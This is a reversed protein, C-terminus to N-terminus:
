RMKKKKMTTKKQLVSKRCRFCYESPETREHLSESFDEASRGIHRMNQACSARATIHPHPHSFPHSGHSGIDPPQHDADSRKKQRRIMCVYDELAAQSPGLAPAMSRTFNFNTDSNKLRLTERQIRGPAIASCHVCTKSDNTDDYWLLDNFFLPVTQAPISM